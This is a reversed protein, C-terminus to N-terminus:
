KRFKLSCLCNSFCSASGLPIMEDIPVWKGALEVCGPRNATDRCHNETEGLVRMAFNMGNEKAVRLLENQYIANAARGYMGARVIMRGNLAQQGSIVQDLFNNLWRYHPRMRWGFKSIESATYNARGGISALYAARYENKMMTAMSRYWQERTISGNVLEATLERMQLETVKSMRLVGLRVRSAPVRYNSGVYRWVGNIPDFYTQVPKYAQQRVETRIVANLLGPLGSTKDWLDLTANLDSTDELFAQLEDENMIRPIDPVDVYQRRPLIKPPEFVPAPLTV